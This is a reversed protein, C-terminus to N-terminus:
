TMLKLSDIGHTQLDREMTLLINGEHSNAGEREGSALKFTHNTNILSLDLCFPPPSTYGGRRWMDFPINPENVSIRLGM